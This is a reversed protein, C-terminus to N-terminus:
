IRFTWRRSFRLTRVKCDIWGKLNRNLTPGKKYPMVVNLM